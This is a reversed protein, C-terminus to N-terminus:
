FRDKVAEAFRKVMKGKHSPPGDFILFVMRRMYHVLRKIFEIFQTGGVRDKVPMFRFEGEASVASIPNWGFGARTSSVVLTKRKVAWTTGAHYDSRVGAEDGFFILARMEKALRRIRLYDKQLWKQM